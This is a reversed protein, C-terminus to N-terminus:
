REKAPEDSKAWHAGMEEELGLSEQCEMLSIDDTKSCIFTVTDFGGDM